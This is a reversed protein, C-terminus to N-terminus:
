TGVTTVRGALVSLWPRIENGFAVTAILVVVAITAIILGYEVVNQATTHLLALRHLTVSRSRLVQWAWAVIVPL